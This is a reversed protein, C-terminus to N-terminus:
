EFLPRVAKIITDIKEEMPLEGTVVLDAQEYFFNRESLKSQIFEKLDAGQLGELMPRETRSQGLRGFLTHVDTRIYVSFALDRILRINQPTCPAGGGTSLIKPTSDHLVQALLRSEIERFYREGLHQFFRPISIGTYKEIERDLDVFPIDLRESVVSGLLSKGSGMFGMLAVTNKSTSM